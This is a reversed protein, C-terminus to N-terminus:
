VLCGKGAPETRLAGGRRRGAGNRHHASHAAEGYDDTGAPHHAARHFFDVNLGYHSFICGHKDNQQLIVFKGTLFACSKGFLLLKAPLFRHNDMM